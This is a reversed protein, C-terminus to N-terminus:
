SRADIEEALRALARTVAMRTANSSPKGIAEAIEQYSYGFEVRLIVAEQQDEPLIALAAEYLEIAERGVADELASQQPSRINDDLESRAPRRQYRRLEYRVANLLIARIYALFGGEQRYEFDNVKDLAKLLSIQVLDDTDHLGRTYHPLRGSAWRRLIPLYRAALKDKAAADGGRVLALLDATSELPRDPNPM